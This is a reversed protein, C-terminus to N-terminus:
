KLEMIYCNTVGDFEERIFKFGVKEYCRIARKNAISPEIVIRMAGREEFLFRSFMKVIETGYGKGIFDEEGIFLDICYTGQPEDKLPGKPDKELNRYAAMDCYLIFGIPRDDSCIIFPFDYGNPEIQSKIMEVTAYGEVFWTNKVHDKESWQDFIKTHEKSFPIFNIKM